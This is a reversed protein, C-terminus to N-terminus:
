KRVLVSVLRRMGATDQLTFLITAGKYDAAVVKKGKAEEHMRWNKYDELYGKSNSFANSFSIIFVQRYSQKDKDTVFKSYTAGVDQELLQLKDWVISDQVSQDGSALKALVMRCFDVDSVFVNKTVGFIILAVVFVAVVIYIKKM